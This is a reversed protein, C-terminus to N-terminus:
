RREENVETRGCRGAKPRRRDLEIVLVVVLVIRPSAPSATLCLAILAHSLPASLRARRAGTWFCSRSRPMNRRKCWSIGLMRLPTSFPNPFDPFCRISSLADFFLGAAARRSENTLHLRSFGFARSVSWLSKGIRSASPRLSATSLLGEIILKHIQQLSLHRSRTGDDNLSSADGPTVSGKPDSYPPRKALKEVTTGQRVTQDTV